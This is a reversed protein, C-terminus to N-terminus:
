RKDAIAKLILCAAMFIAITVFWTIGQFFTLYFPRHVVQESSGDANMPYVSALKVYYKADDTKRQEGKPYFTTLKQCYTDYDTNEFRVFEGASFLYLKRRQDRLYVYQDDAHLQSQGKTRYFAYSKIYNGDLDYIELVGKEGFLLYLYQDKVCIDALACWYEKERSFEYPKGEEVEKKLRPPQSPSEVLMIICLMMVMFLVVILREINIKM